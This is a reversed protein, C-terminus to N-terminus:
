IVFNAYITPVVPNKVINIYQNYMKYVSLPSSEKEHFGRLIDLYNALCIVFFTYTGRAKSVVENKDQKGTHLNFSM